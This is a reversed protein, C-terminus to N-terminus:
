DNIIEKGLFKLNSIPIDFINVGKNEKKLIKTKDCLFYLYFEEPLNICELVTNLHQTPYVRAKIIFENKYTQSIEFGSIQIADQNSFIEMYVDEKFNKIKNKKM